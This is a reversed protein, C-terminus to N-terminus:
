SLQKTTIVNLLMIIVNKAVIVNFKLIIISKAKQIEEKKNKNQVKTKKITEEEEEKAMDEVVVVADEVDEAEEMVVIVQSHVKNPPSAEVTDLKKKNVLHEQAQSSGMLKYQIMQDLDKSEQMFVMIFNFKEHISRLVKEVMRVDELNKDNKRLQNDITLVETFYDSTTESENM